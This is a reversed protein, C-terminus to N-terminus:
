IQYESTRAKARKVLDALTMSNLVNQIAAEVEVWVERAVCDASRKCYDEDETCETTTVPGELCRFVDGLTVEDAPRALIYGGKSGRVSRVFGASRLLSMLQELYKVSIDQREAIAKLQLPRKGEHQALEIIARMGYRTRTSLKM